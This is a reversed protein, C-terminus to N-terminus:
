HVSLRMKNLTMYVVNFRVVAVGACKCRLTPRSLLKVPRQVYVCQERIAPLLIAHHVRSWRCTRMRDVRRFTHIHFPVRRDVQETAYAHPDNALHQM